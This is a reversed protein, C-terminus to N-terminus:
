GTMEYTATLSLTDGTDAAFNPDVGLVAAGATDARWLRLTSTSQFDVRVTYVASISTDFYYGVGVAVNTAGNRAPCNPPLGVLISNNTTGTGTIALYIELNVLQGIRCYRAVTATNTVAGSQTLTPTYDRWRGLNSVYDELERDRQEYLGAKDAPDLFEDDEIAGTRISFRFSM